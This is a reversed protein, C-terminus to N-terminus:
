QKTAAAQRRRRRGGQPGGDRALLRAQGRDGHHDGRHAPAGRRAAFVRRDADRQLSAANRGLHDQAAAPGRAPLPRRHRLDSRYVRYADRAESRVNVALELLRNVAQMYIAEAQRVRVEGFDFIPIQLDIMSAASAFANAPKSTRPSSTPTAAKSFTSSAPPKPSVTPSRSRRRARHPRDASRRPPAGGGGRDGALM